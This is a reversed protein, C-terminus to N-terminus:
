KTSTINYNTLRGSKSNYVISIYEDFNQIMIEWKSNNIYTVVLYGESDNWEKKYQTKLVGLVYRIRESNIVGEWINFNDDWSVSSLTSSAVATFNLKNGSITSNANAMIQCGNNFWAFILIPWYYSRTFSCDIFYTPIDSELDDVTSYRIRVGSLQCRKDWVESKSIAVSCAETISTVPVELITDENWIDNINHFLVYHVIPPTIFPGLFIYSLFLTMSIILIKKKFNIKAKDIVYTNKNILFIFVMGIIIILLTIFGCFKIFDFM